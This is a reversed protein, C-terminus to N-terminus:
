PLGADFIGNFYVGIGVSWNNSTNVLQGYQPTVGALAPTGNAGANAAFTAGTRLTPSARMQAPFPVLGFQYTNTASWTIGIGYSAVNFCYRYCDALTQQLSKPEITTCVTGAEIQLDTMVINAGATASWNTAGVASIYNANQWAGSATGQFTGTNLAGVCLSMATHLGYILGSTAPIAPVLIQYVTPTNATAVTITTLYTWVRTSSTNHIGFAVSYTGVVSAQFVFQIAVPGGNMDYANMGEINYLLGYMYNGTAIGSIATTATLRVAPKVVNLHSISTADLTLSGATAFNASKFGDVSGYDSSTVPLVVAPRQQALCRGNYAKNRGTTTGIVLNNKASAVNNAGTGGSAVSLAQAFSIAGNV